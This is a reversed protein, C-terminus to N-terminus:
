GAPFLLLVLLCFLNPSHAHVESYVCWSKELASSYVSYWLNFIIKSHHMRVCKELRGLRMCKGTWSSKDVLWVNTEWRLEDPVGRCHTVSAGSAAPTPTVAAGADGWPHLCCSCGSGAGAGQAAGGRCSLDFWCPTCRSAKLSIEAKRM